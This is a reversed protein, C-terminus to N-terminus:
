NTILFALPVNKRPVVRDWNAADRLQARTASVGQGIGSVNFAMGFPHIIWTRRTWLTEVGAGNGQAEERQVAVPNLPAGEGYGMAGAGFLISVYRFGSTTGAIVPMGDDLIVRRGLYTPITGTGQSDPIDIVDDQDVMQAYIHSHVAIAGTNQFADGLTFAAANFAARSFMNDAAANNGDQTSIDHVMDSNDNAVNDALVGLASDVMRKQLQITWYNEVRNRIHQMADAGMALQSALDTASWGQNLNQKRAEQAGQTVKQPTAIDAPDDTSLNPDDDSDLDNWFPLEARMGAAQALEDLLPNKNIIGSTFFSTQVMSNEPELDQYVVVDIIDTLRVEAM